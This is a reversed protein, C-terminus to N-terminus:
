EVNEFDHELLRGRAEELREVALELHFQAASEPNAAFALGLQEVARDLGYLRDGPEAEDSAYVVGGTVATLALLTIIIIQIVGLSWKIKWSFMSKINHIFHQFTVSQSASLKGVLQKYGNEKFILRPSHAPYKNISVYKKLLMELENKHHPLHELCDQITWKDKKILDLCIALVDEVSKESFDKKKNM